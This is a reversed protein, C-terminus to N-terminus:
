NVVTHALAFFFKASDLNPPFIGPLALFNGTDGPCSPLSDFSKIVFCNPLVDYVTLAALPWGERNISPFVSALSTQARVTHYTCMARTSPLSTNPAFYM